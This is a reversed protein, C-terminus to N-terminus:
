SVCLLTAEGVQMTHSVLGTMLMRQWDSVSAREYAFTHAFVECWQCLRELTGFVPSAPEQDDWLQFGEGEPPDQPKWLEHMRRLRRTPWAQGSGGCTGCTLPKGERLCRARVCHARNICDHGIGGIAWDNVERATPRRGSPRRLWYSEKCAAVEEPTQPRRTFDWLRDAALLADVDAQNLHHSWMGNWLECLRQAELEVAVVEGLVHSQYFRPNQRVNSRAFAFVKPHQPKLPTSGYEVPDFPANGHWQDHIRRLHPSSGTGGCPTCSFPQHPNVYGKWTTGRPWSFDLPVRKLHKSM